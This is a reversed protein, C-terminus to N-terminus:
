IKCSIPKSWRISGYCSPLPTKTKGDCHSVPKKNANIFHRLVSKKYIRVPISSCHLLFFVPNDPVPFDTFQQILRQVEKWYHDLKPCFWFIHLLTVREERCDGSNIQPKLTSFIDCRRTITGDPSCNSILRRYARAYPPSGVLIFSKGNNILSVNKQFLINIEQTHTNNVKNNQIKKPIPPGLSAGPLCGQLPAQYPEPTAPACPRTHVM